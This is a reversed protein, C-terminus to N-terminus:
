RRGRKEELVEGELSLSRKKKKKKNGQRMGLSGGVDDEVAAADRVDGEEREGREGRSLDTNHVREAAGEVFAQLFWIGSCGDVVEHRLGFKPYFVGGGAQGEDVVHVIVGGPPPLLVGALGRGGVLVVIGDVTADIEGNVGTFGGSGGAGGAGQVAQLGAELRWDLRLTQM